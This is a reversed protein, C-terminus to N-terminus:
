RCLRRLGALHKADVHEMVALLAQAAARTEEITMSSFSLLDDLNDSHSEVQVLRELAALRDRDLDPFDVCLKEIQGTFGSSGPCRFALFVDLVRRLVNPMMYGHEYYSAPEATFKLVHSFLFHYESDYERLLKSMEVITSTRRQSGESIATDLFLFSATPDGQPPRAKGKWAKRFENMCQLNHTLIFLQKAGSLRNRVLSCAYNLAKTDLSSVPDDVVVIVDKLKRGDAEISCLFYAIAIATKEGESPLGEIPSGHRRLQYGEDVPHITLEGHSLYSAVLKNMADAAPGHQRIKRRLEEAEETLTKSRQAATELAGSADSIDKEYAAYEALCDAIFHQRIALEARTQHDVFDAVTQNHKSMSANIAARAAELDSVINRIDSEAPLASVDAPTAPRRKKEELASVLTQLHGEIITVVERFRTKEARFGDRFESVVDDGSPLMRGMTGVDAIVTALRAATRDIKDVFEDVKNDLASALQAMREGPVPNGCFLCDTASHKEHFEHGQKLWLLMDPFREIEALAVTALSQSCMEMVFRFAATITSTDYEVLAVAPMPESLKRIEEADALEREGLVSLALEKWAEFDKALAPAEYKRNGLHLRSATLKARDRKFAAFAKTATTEAASAQSHATATKVLETELRALEAAAEAQDAGIFFVPNAVGAAWQLNRDVYDANFVVLNRELGTPQAPHGVISGDDLEVDFAADQPLRAHLEAAELSAFLRSLTSKGSGNFGYILNYRRFPLPPMRSTRDALIGMRQMSRISKVSKSM